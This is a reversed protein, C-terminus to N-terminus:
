QLAVPVELRNGFVLPQRGSLVGTLDNCDVCVAGELSHHAAEIPGRRQLEDTTHAEHDRHRSRDQPDVPDSCTPESEHPKGDGRIRVVPEHAPVGDGEGGHERVEDADGGPLPHDVDSTTGPRESGLQDLPQTIVRDDSDIRRLREHLGDVLSMGADLHM